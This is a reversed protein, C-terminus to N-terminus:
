SSSYVNGSECIAMGPKKTEIVFILITVNKPIVLMIKPYFNVEIFLNSTKNVKQLSMYKLCNRFSM